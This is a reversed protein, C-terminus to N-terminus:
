ATRRGQVPEDNTTNDCPSYAVALLPQPPPSTLKVIGGDYGQVFWELPHRQCPAVWELVDEVYRLVIM